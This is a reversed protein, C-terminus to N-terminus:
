GTIKLFKKGKKREKEIKEKIYNKLDKKTQKNAKRLLNPQRTQEKITWWRERSNEKTCEKKKKKEEVERAKEINEKKRSKTLKV